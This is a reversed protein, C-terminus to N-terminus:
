ALWRPNSELLQRQQELTRLHQDWYGEDAVWPFAKPFAPDSWRTVLWAAYRMLRLGRLPEILALEGRPFDRHQEYGELLESLQMQAEQDDQATLM